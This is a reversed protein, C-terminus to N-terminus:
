ENSARRHGPGEYDELRFDDSNMYHVVADKLLAGKAEVDELIKRAKLLEADSNDKIDLFFRTCGEMRKMQMRDNKERITMM